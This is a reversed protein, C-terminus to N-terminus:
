ERENELASLHQRFSFEFQYLYAATIIWLILRTVPRYIPQRLIMLAIQVWLNIRSSAYIEIEALPFDTYEGSSASLWPLISLISDSIVMALVIVLLAFLGHWWSVIGPVYGSIRGRETPNLDPYYRDLLLYLYHHAFAVVPIPLLLVLPSILNFLSGIISSIVSFLANFIAGIIFQLFQPLASIIFSAVFFILYFLWAFVLYILSFLEHIPSVLLTAVILLGALLGANIWSSLNPFITWRM